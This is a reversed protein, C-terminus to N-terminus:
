SPLYLFHCTSSGHPPCVFSLFGIFSSAVSQFSLRQAPFRKPVGVETIPRLMRERETGKETQDQTYAWNQM